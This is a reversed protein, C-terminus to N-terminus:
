EGKAKRIAETAIRNIEAFRRRMEWTGLTTGGESDPVCNSVIKLAALLDPAAAILRANHALETVPVAIWGRGPDLAAILPQAGHLEPRCRQQYVRIGDGDDGADVKWPGPTHTM